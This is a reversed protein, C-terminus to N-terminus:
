LGGCDKSIATLLEMSRDLDSPNWIIEKPDVGLSIAQEVAKAEASALTSHVITMFSCVMKTLKM